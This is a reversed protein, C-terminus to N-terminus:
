YRFADPGDLRGFRRPHPIQEPRQAWRARRRRAGGHEGWYLVAVVGAAACLLAGVVVSYFTGASIVGVVAGLVIGLMGAGFVLRRIKLDM